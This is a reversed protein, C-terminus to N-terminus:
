DRVCRVAFARATEGDTQRYLAESGKGFNYYIATGGAAGATATWYFGHADLRGYEGKESRGGGLVANFGSRGGALLATFASHGRDDSDDFMGGFQKALQRWDGDTPLRWGAGLSRCAQQAAEWTYLRGYRGCDAETDDYCYSSSTVFRLNDTTWQKGDPM